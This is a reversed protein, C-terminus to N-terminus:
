YLYLIPGAATTTAPTAITAMTGFVGAQTGALAGNAVHARYKPTTGEWQIALWVRQPGVAAYTATFAIEEFAADDTTLTGALASSKLLVGAASYLGVIVKHTGVVSGNLIGIGTVTKNCPIFAESYEIQGATPTADTGTTLTAPIFGAGSYIRCLGGIPVIGGTPTTAGTIGLTTGVTAAGSMTVDGTLTSTLDVVLSGDCNINADFDANGTVNLTDDVTTAGSLTAAGTVGLTTGVTAAGECVISALTAAGDVDLTSNFNVAGDNEFTNTLHVAGAGDVLAGVTATGSTVLNGAGDITLANTNSTGTGVAVAIDATTAATHKIYGLDNKVSM